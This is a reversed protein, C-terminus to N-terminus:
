DADLIARQKEDECRDIVKVNICRIWAFKTRIHNKSRQKIMKRNKRRYACYECVNQEVITKLKQNQWRETREM